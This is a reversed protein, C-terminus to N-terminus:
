KEGQNTKGRPSFANMEGKGSEWQSVRQIVVWWNCNHMRGGGGAARFAVLPNFWMIRSICLFRQCMLLYHLWINCYLLTIRICWCFVYPCTYFMVARGHADSFVCSRFSTVSRPHVSQDWNTSWNPLYYGRVSGGYTHRGLRAIISPM